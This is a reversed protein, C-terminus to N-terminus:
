YIYPAKGKGEDKTYLLVVYIPRKSKCGEIEKVIQAYQIVYPATAECDECDLKHFYVFYKDEPQNFIDEKSINKVGSLEGVKNCGSMVTLAITLILILFFKKM